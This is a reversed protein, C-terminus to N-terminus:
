HIISLPYNIINYNDFDTAFSFGGFIQLSKM